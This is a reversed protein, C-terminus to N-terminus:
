DMRNKITENISKTYKIRQIEAVKKRREQEKFEELEAKKQARIEFLLRKNSKKKRKLSEGVYKKHGQFLSICEEFTPYKREDDCNFTPNIPASSSAHMNQSYLYAM